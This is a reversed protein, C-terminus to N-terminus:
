GTALAKPKWGYTPNANAWKVAWVYHFASALEMLHLTSNQKISVTGFRTTPLDGVVGLQNRKTKDFVGKANNWRQNLNFGRCLDLQQWQTEKSYVAELKSANLPVASCITDRVNTPIATEQNPTGLAEAMVKRLWLWAEQYQQSNSRTLLRSESGPLWAAPYAFTLWSYDPFHGVQGHGRCAQSGPANPAAACDTDSALVWLSGTWTSLQWLEPNTSVRYYVNNLTGAGNLDKSAIGSFDQHAWTDALVHMRIGLFIYALQEINLPALRLPKGDKTGFVKNLEQQLSQQAAVASTQKGLALLQKFRTITDLVMDHAFKSYPRCLLSGQISPKTERALFKQRFESQWPYQDPGSASYLLNGPPFHFANWLDDDYDIAMKADISQCSLQPVNIALLPKNQEDVISWYSWFDSNYFDVYEAANGIVQAQEATFGASRAASATGYFHFDTDM